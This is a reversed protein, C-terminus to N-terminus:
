VCSTGADTSTIRATGGVAAVRAVISARIGLRDEAVDDVAFGAGHRGGRDAGVGRDGTVGCRWGPDGDAHQVANAVAQTAALALARAVRGPLQAASRVDREVEIVVGLEAAAAEIDDAIATADARRTM